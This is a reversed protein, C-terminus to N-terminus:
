LLRTFHRRFDVGNLYSWRMAMRAPIPLRTKRCTLGDSDYKLKSRTHTDAMVDWEHWFEVRKVDGSYVDSGYSLSNIGRRVNRPTIEKAKTSSLAIAAFYPINFSHQESYRIATHKRNECLVFTLCSPFSLQCELIWRTQVLITM